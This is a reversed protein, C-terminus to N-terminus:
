GDVGSRMTEASASPASRSAASTPRSCPQSSSTHRGISALRTRARSERCRPRIGRAAPARAPRSHRRARASRAAPCWEARVQALQAVALDAQEDRTAAVYQQRQPVADAVLGEGAGGLHHAELELTARVRGRAAQIDVVVPRHVPYMGPAGAAAAVGLSGALPDVRLLRVGLQQARHAQADVAEVGLRQAHAAGRRPPRM